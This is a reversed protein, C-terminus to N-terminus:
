EGLDAEDSSPRPPWGSEDPMDPEDTADPEGNTRDAHRVAEDLDDPANRRRPTSM